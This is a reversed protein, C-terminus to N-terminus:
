ACSVNHLEMPVFMQVKHQLKDEKDWRQKKSASVALSAKGM